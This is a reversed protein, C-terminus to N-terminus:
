PLSYALGNSSIADGLGVTNKPKKCVLVPAFFFRHRGEAWVGVPEKLGIQVFDGSAVEFSMPAIAEIHESKFSKLDMGCAKTAATVAGQAVASDMMTTWHRSNSNLRIAIIHFALSHFHVRTIRRNAWGDVHTDAYHMVYSLALSVARPEPVKGTLMSKKFTSGHTGTEGDEDEYEGGLAEYLMALEEENCGFSNAFVTLDDFMKKLFVRDTMSAFELHIPTKTDVAKLGKGVAALREDRGSPPLSELQNLGSAIFVDFPGHERSEQQVIPGMPELGQIRSNYVDHVVIFRNARPAVAGNWEDGKHYELILHIADKSATKGGDEATLSAVTKINTSLLVKLQPGVAGGLLVNCKCSLDALATAMLAANGGTKFETRASHQEALKIIRKFLKKSSVFREAAAGKEFWFTFSDIFDELSEIMGVDRPHVPIDREGNKSLSKYAGRVTDVGNVLEDVNANWGIAVRKGYPSTKKRAVRNLALLLQVNYSDDSSTFQEGTPSIEFTQSASALGAFLFLAAVGKWPTM